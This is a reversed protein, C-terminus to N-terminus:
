IKFQCMFTIFFAYFDDKCIYITDLKVRPAAMDAATTDPKNFVNLVRRRHTYTTPPPPTNHFIIDATVPFRSWLIDLTDM